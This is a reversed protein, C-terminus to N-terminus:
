TKANRLEDIRPVDLRRIEIKVTSNLNTGHAQRHQPTVQEFDVLKYPKTMRLLIKGFLYIHKYRMM